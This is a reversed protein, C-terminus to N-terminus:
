RETLALAQALASTITEDPGGAGPSSASAASQALRNVRIRLANAVVHANTVIYGDSDIIAGSGVVQERDLVVGTRGSAGEDRAAFRTVSIRVVCPAVKAALAQVSDSFQDLVATSGRGTQAQATFLLGALCM